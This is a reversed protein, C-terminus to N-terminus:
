CRTELALLGKFPKLYKAATQEIIKEPLEPPDSPKDWGCQSLWERVFQKDFSM